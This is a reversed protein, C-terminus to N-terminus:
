GKAGAIMNQIWESHEAYHAYTNGAIWDLIPRGNDKDRESPDFHSYTKLLDAEDLQNLTDLLQQYSNHFAVRVEALSRHKNREFILANQADADLTSWEERGLGMAAYRAKKQLLAILGQEWATVHVLHDKIAWGDADPQTLQADGLQILVRELDAHAAYVTQFLGSKNKPISSHTM